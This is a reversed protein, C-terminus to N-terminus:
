SYLLALSLLRCQELHIPKMYTMCTCSLTVVSYLLLNISLRTHVNCHHSHADHNCQKITPVCQNVHLKYLDHKSGYGRTSNRCLTIWSLFFFRHGTLLWLRHFPSQVPIFPVCCVLIISQISTFSLTNERGVKLMGPVSRCVKEHVWLPM